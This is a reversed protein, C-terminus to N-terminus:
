KVEKVVDCIFDIDELTLEPYNPLFFGREFLKDSIHHKFEERNNHLYLKWFPHRGLNAATYIRTEISNKTLVEVIRKRHKTDLAICAFHISSPNTGTTVQFEFRPDDQLNEIYRLHNKTRRRTTYEAKELQHIGLFAQLDTGRLNFGPIYFIFPNYFTDFQSRKKFIEHVENPLDKGWGHARLMILIYYIQEDDTNIMGGEITSMQHGFYFSFTSMDGLTGVM